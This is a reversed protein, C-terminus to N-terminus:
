VYSTTSPNNRWQECARRSAFTGRFWFSPRCLTSFANPDTQCFTLIGRNKGLYQLDGVENVVLSGMGKKDPNLIDRDSRTGESKPTMAEIDGYQRKFSGNECLTRDTVKARGDINSQERPYKMPWSPWSESLNVTGDSSKDQRLDWSPSSATSPVSRVKLLKEVRELRDEVEANRNHGPRRFLISL